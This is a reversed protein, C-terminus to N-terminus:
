HVGQSALVNRVHDDAAAGGAEPASDAQQVGPLTAAGDNVGQIKDNKLVFGGVLAGETPAKLRLPNLNGPAMVNTGDLMRLGEHREADREIGVQEEVDALAKRLVALVENKHWGPCDLNIHADQKPKGNADKQLTYTSTTFTLVMRKVRRDVGGQRLLLRKLSM